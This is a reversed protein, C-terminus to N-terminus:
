LICATWWERELQLMFTSWAWSAGYIHLSSSGLLRPLSTPPNHCPLFIFSTWTERIIDRVCLIIILKLINLVNTSFWIRRLIFRPRVTWFLHMARTHFVRLSSLLAKLWVLENTAAAMSWYKTEASSRSVTTREKTKWSIPFGRLTVLYGTLSHRTLPCAGWDSDCFTSLHLSAHANLLIRYGLSGKIYRLAQCAAVMHEQRLAQM